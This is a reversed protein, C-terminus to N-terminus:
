KKDVTTNTMCLARYAADVKIVGVKLSADVFLGLGVAPYVSFLHGRKDTIVSSDAGKVTNLVEAIEEYFSFDNAHITNYSIGSG